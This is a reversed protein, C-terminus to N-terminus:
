YKKNQTVFLILYTIVAILFTLRISAVSESFFLYSLVPLVATVIGEICKEFTVYSTKYGDAAYEYIAIHDFMEYASNAAGLLLYIVPLVYVLVSTSFCFLMLFAAIYIGSMVRLIKYWRRDQVKSHWCKSFVAESANLMINLLGYYTYGVDLYRLLFANLYMVGCGYAFRQLAGTVLIKRFKTDAAPKRLSERVTIKNEAIPPKYTIMRLAIDVVAIMFVITFLLIFGYLEHEHVTFRDLAVGMLLSFGMVVTNKFMNRTSAFRARDETKILTMRWNVLTIYGMEGTVAYISAFLFFLFTRIGIDDTVFPIIVFCVSALRYLSYNVLVIIKSQGIRSFLPAAFIQLVNTITDLVTYIGIAFDSLGLYVAFAVVFSQSAIKNGATDLVSSTLYKNYEREYNM